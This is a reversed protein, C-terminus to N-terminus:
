APRVSPIHHREPFATKTAPAIRLSNPLLPIIVAASPSLRPAPPALRISTSHESPRPAMKLSSAEPPYAAGPLYQPSIRQFLSRRGSPRPPPCVQFRPQRLLRHRRSRSFAQPATRPRAIRQTGRALPPATNTCTGGVLNTPIQAFYVLCGVAPAPSCARTGSQAVVSPLNVSAFTVTGQPAGPWTSGSVQVTTSIEM